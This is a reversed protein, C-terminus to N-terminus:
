NTFITCILPASKREVLGNRVDQVWQFILEVSLLDVKDVTTQNFRFIGLLKEISFFTLKAKVLAKVYSIYYVFYVFIRAM